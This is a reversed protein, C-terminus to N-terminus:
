FDFITYSLLLKLGSNREFQTLGFFSDKKIDMMGFYAISAISFHASLKRRYGIALSADMTNYYGKSVTSTAKLSVPALSAYKIYNTNSEVQIKNNLLFSIGAGIFIVNKEDLHYHLYLPAGIYHLTRPTLITSYSNSGFSYTTAGIKSTKLYAIRSYQLGVAFSWKQNYCHMFSVGLLPTVGRSETSTLYKWGLQGNIGAEIEFLNIATLGDLGLPAYDDVKPKSSVSDSKKVSDIKTLVKISDNLSDKIALSKLNQTLVSDNSESNSLSSDISVSNKSIAKATVNSTVKNKIKGTNKKVQKEVANNSTGALADRTLNKEKEKKNKLTESSNNKESVGEGSTSHTSPNNENTNKLRDFQHKRNVSKEENDSITSVIFANAGAKNKNNNYAPAETKNEIKTSTIIKYQPISNSQIETKEAGSSNDNDVTLTYDSNTEDTTSIPIGKSNIQNAAISKNLNNKNSGYDVNKHTLTYMLIIGAVLGIFFISSWWLIKKLRISADLKMEAKEWNAENFIFEKEAFKQCIIDDFEESM